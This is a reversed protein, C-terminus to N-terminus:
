RQRKKANEMSSIMKEYNKILFAGEKEKIIHFVGALYISHELPTPRKYTTQVFIKRKKTMGVWNAFEMANPVTASLMILGKFNFGIFFM